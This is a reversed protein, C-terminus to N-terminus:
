YSFALFIRKYLAPFYELRQLLLEQFPSRGVPKWTGQITYSALWRYGAGYKFGKMMKWSYGDHIPNQTKGHHYGPPGLTFFHKTISMRRRVQASTATGMKASLWFVVTVAVTNVVSCVEPGVMEGVVTIVVCGGVVSCVPASFTVEAAGSFAVAFAVSVAVSFPVAVGTVVPNVATGAAV